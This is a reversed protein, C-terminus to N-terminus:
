SPAAALLLLYNKFLRGMTTEETRITEWTERPKLVIEKIRDIIDQM